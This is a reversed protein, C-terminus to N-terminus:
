AVRRLFEVRARRAARHRVAARREAQMRLDRDKRGSFVLHWVVEREFSNLPSGSSMAERAEELTDFLRTNGAMRM